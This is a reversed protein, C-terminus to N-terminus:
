RAETAFYLVYNNSLEKLSFGKYGPFCKLIVSARIGIYEAPMIIYLPGAHGKHVYEDFNISIDSNLPELTIIRNHQIDLGLDPSTFVFIADKSKRDLKTIYNLTPQDIFQQAIGSSGRATHNKIGNYSIIYYRLSFFAIFLVVLGLAVRYAPKFRSFLYLIGPAIILGIIRFHRSEYSIDMRLLYATGFFLISIVYFTLLIMKYHKNPVYRWILCILLLSLLALVLLIIIAWLPSFIPTDNHFILGHALDDASFGALLPSAIPFSLTEWSLKLGHGNSSPNGGKSLYFHYIAVVSILAPIGLWFGRIIWGGINKQHQSLHFWIALLGAAYMWIFSSKCLFGIWGSLLVFLVLIIGPKNFSICGYLFWGAFAFLLVEGGNYFIYPTFFAQQCIILVLSLASILRSFGAKKFFVYFGGLGLLQCLATTIATAQGTTINLMWKFFYPVLYQGPSWWSVFEKINLAINQPDPKVVTNFASGMQMSRLVQFGWSPDPFIAAPTICLVIGLVAVFVFLVLLIFEHIPNTRRSM